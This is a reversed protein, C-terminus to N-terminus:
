SFDDGSKRHARERNECFDKLELLVSNWGQDLFAYTEEDSASADEDKMILETMGSKSRIEYSLVHKPTQPPLGLGDDVWLLELIHGPTLRTIRARGTQRSKGTSWHAVLEGGERPDCSARDCFWHELDNAYTLAQYVVEASAQIWVKKLIKNQPLVKNDSVPMLRKLVKGASQIGLAVLYLREAGSVDKRIERSRLAVGSFSWSRPV